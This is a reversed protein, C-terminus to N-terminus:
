EDLYAEDDKKHSYNSLNEYKKKAQETTVIEGTVSLKFFLGSDNDGIQSFLGDPRSIDATFEGSSMIISCAKENLPLDEGKNRLYKILALSYVGMEATLRHYATSGESNSGESNFQKIIENNIEQAAFTLLKTRKAGDPLVASGWLLGAIDAFYHNSTLFKSYELNNYIHNCHDMMFQVMVSEFSDSFRVGQSKFLSYALAVNATRIGIDMTCVYNVGWRPPNTASFDLIENCFDIKMKESLDEFRGSIIALRPLHQLRGLEWPVKIDGGPKDAVVQPRYWMDSSWRYGSIFDRQWDIPKYDDSLQNWLKKSGKVNPWHLVEYLFEGAKDTNIQKMNYAFEEFGKVKCNYSVDAWGSGLLDFRHSLYENALYKLKEGEIQSLDLKSFDFGIPNLRANSSIQIRTDFFRDKQRIVKLKFADFFVSIIYAVNEPKLKHKNEIYIRFLKKFM